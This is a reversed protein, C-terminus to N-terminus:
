AHGCSTQMHGATLGLGVAIPLPLFAERIEVTDYHPHQQKHVPQGCLCCVRGKWDGLSFGEYLANVRPCHLGGLGTQDKSQLTLCARSVRGQKSM